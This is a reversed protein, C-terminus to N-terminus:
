IARVLRTCVCDSIACRMSLNSLINRDSSEGGPTTSSVEDEEYDDLDDSEMAAPTVVDSARKSKYRRQSRRLEDADMANVTYERFSPPFVVVQRVAGFVLFPVLNTCSSM